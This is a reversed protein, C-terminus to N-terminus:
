VIDPSLTNHHAWMGKHAARVFKLPDAWARGTADMVGAALVDEASDGKRVLEVFSEFLRLMMDHEKQVAARDVVPGYSPVIKTRSDGLALLAQLSDVRGGLWGGGFWDLEPDRVPSVADGVALVNSDRFFVYMDGDTHAELLYGYEIREKGITTGGTTYISETPQAEKPAPPHYRDEAPLYYGTALRLRTKEHAVITAGGRGIAANSGIQDLHWHTNFLTRVREGGFLTGLTALLVDGSAAAGSDVLVTGENTRLALVNGGAGAVLAADESLKSVSPSDAAFSLRSLAPLSLGALAGCAGKLLSRRDAM